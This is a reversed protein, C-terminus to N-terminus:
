HLALVHKHSTNIITSDINLNCDASKLKDFLSRCGHHFQDCTQVKLARRLTHNCTGEDHRQNAHASQPGHCQARLEFEM